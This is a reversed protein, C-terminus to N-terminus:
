QNVNLAGLVCIYLILIFLYLYFISQVPWCRHVWCGAENENESPVLSNQCAEANGADEGGKRLCDWTSFIELEHASVTACIILTSIAFLMWWYLHGQLFVTDLPFLHHFCFYGRILRTCVQSSTRWIKEQLPHILDSKVSRIWGGSGCSRKFTCLTAVKVQWVVLAKCICRYFDKNQQLCCLFGWRSSSEVLAM